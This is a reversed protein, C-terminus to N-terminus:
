TKPTVGAVSTDSIKFGQATLLALVEKKQSATVVILLAQNDIRTLLVQILDIRLKFLSPLFSCVLGGIFGGVIAFPIMGLIALFQNTINQFYIATFIALAFSGGVGLSRYFANFIYEGVTVPSIRAEVVDKIQIKGAVVDIPIPVNDMDTKAMVIVEGNEFFVKAPRFPKRYIGSLTWQDSILEQKTLPIDPILCSFSGSLSLCVDRITPHLHNPTAKEPPVAPRPEAGTTITSTPKGTIEKEGALEIGQAQSRVPSLITRCKPCNVVDGAEYDYGSPAESEHKCRSCILKM